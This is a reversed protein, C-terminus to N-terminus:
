SIIGDLFLNVKTVNVTPEGFVGLFRGTTYKAIAAKVEDESVGRAQAIRPVQYAAAAPSIAPDLGSGSATVLDEPVPTNGMAPNAERVQQVRQAILKGYEQSAPSLNSPGAYLLSKGANDKYTSADLQMVRGWLHGKDTYPQGILESGYKTGDKEIISGTSKYPFIVQAAGTIVGTYFIGCLLTFFLYIKVAGPFVKKWTSM